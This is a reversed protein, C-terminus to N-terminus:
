ERARNDCIYQYVIQNATPDHTTGREERRQLIEKRSDLYVNRPVVDGILPLIIKLTTHM